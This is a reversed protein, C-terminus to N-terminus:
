IFDWLSYDKINRITYQDFKYIVYKNLSDFDATQIDFNWVFLINSDNVELNHLLPSLISPPHSM